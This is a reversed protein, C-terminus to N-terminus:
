KYQIEQDIKDCWGKSESHPWVRWSKPRANNEFERWIHIFQDGPSQSFLQSIESKSCDLRYMDNGNEDLFAVVFLDYDTEPLSGKYVDICHKQKSALGTEYDGQIPPFSRNLTEIHIQRTSFKLGAYREYQELTRATGFYNPALAKRTCATCGPDMGMLKRFREYSADDKQKWDNADSWHKSKGERTYEHWVIPFHPSFLDYGYTYARASLSSEEGHFYLNEDYPVDKAFQGLTFIFHGSIFRSKIPDKLSKWNDVHFPALFPVGGPMFRDINLGWVEQLRGEPDRDPFYSAVYSSLLPKDYSKAQLYSIQDKLIDDWNEIFRHHSDLQFYYDEGSYQSQIKSRMWCVGQAEKYPIDLIIFRPDELYEDLNDWQDEESHQWGICIKLDDPNAATELLNKITPRLEPDRYSAISVFIKSM